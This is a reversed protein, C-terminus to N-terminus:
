GDIAQYALTTRSELEQVGPTEVYVADGRAVLAVLGALQRDALRRLAAGIRKLRADSLGGCTQM